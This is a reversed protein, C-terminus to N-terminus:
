TFAVLAKKIAKTFPMDGPVEQPIYYKLTDKTRVYCIWKLM